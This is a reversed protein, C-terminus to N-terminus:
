TPSVFIYFFYTLCNALCSGYSLLHGLANTLSHLLFGWLYAVILVTKQLPILLFPEKGEPNRLHFCSQPPRICETRDVESKENNGFISICSVPLNLNIAFILVQDCAINLCRWSVLSGYINRATLYTTPRTYLSQLPSNQLFSKCVRLLYIGNFKYQGPGSVKPECRM